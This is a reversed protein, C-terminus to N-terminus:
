KTQKLFNGKNDFILERAKIGVGVRYTVVGKEDTVEEAEKIKKWSYKKMVYENIASPLDKLKVEMETEHLNGMLDFDVATEIGNNSFECEYSDKGVKGWKDNTASPFLKTFKSKITVPVDKTDVGQPYAFYGCFVLLILVAKKMVKIYLNIYKSIKTM